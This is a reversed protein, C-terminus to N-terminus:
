TCQFSLTNDKKTDFHLKEVLVSVSNMGHGLIRKYDNITIKSTDEKGYALIKIFNNQVNQTEININQTNNNSNIINHYKLNEEELKKMKENVNKNAEELKILRDMLKEMKNDNEKKVKYRERIHM